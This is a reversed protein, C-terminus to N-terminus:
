HWANPIPFPHVSNIPRSSPRRNDGGHPVVESLLTQVEHIAAHVLTPGSVAAVVDQPPAPANFVFQQGDSHLLDNLAAPSEANAEHAVRQLSYGMATAQHVLEKMIGRAITLRRNAEALATSQESTHAELVALRMQATALRTELGTPTTIAQHGRLRANCRALAAIVKNVSEPLHPMLDQWAKISFHETTSLGRLRGQVDPALPYADQIEHAINRLHTHLARAEEVAAAHDRRLSAVARLAHMRDGYLEVVLRKLEKCRCLQAYAQAYTPRLKRLTEGVAQATECLQPLLGQRHWYTRWEPHTCLISQDPTRYQLPGTPAVADDVSGTVQFLAQTEPPLDTFTPLPTNGGEPILRRLQARLQALRNVPLAAASPVDVEARPATTAWRNTM